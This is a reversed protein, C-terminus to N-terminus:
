LLTKFVDEISICGQEVAASANGYITKISETQLKNVFRKYSPGQTTSLTTSLADLVKESTNTTQEDVLYVGVYGGECESCGILSSAKSSEGAFNFGKRSQSKMADDVVVDKKCNDCLHPLRVSFYATNLQQCFIDVTLQDILLTQIAFDQFSKASTTVILYDDTLSTIMKRSYSDGLEVKVTYGQQELLASIFKANAQENNDRVVIIPSSSAIITDVLAVLRKKESPMLSTTYSSVGSTCQEDSPVKKSSLASANGFKLFLKGACVSYGSANADQMLQLIANSAASSLSNMM